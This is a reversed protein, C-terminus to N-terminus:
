EWKEMRDWHSIQKIMSSTDEDIGVKIPENSENKNSELIKEQAIIISPFQKMIDHFEEKVLDLRM